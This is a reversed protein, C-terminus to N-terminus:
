KNGQEVLPLFCLGSCAPGSFLFFESCLLPEPSRSHNRIVSTTKAYDWSPPSLLWRNLHHKIVCLGGCANESLGRGHAATSLGNQQSSFTAAELARQWAWELKNQALTEEFYTSRPQWIDRRTHAWFTRSWVGSSSMEKELASQKGQLRQLQSQFRLPRLPFSRFWLYVCGKTGRTQRNQNGARNTCGFQSCPNLLSRPERHSWLGPIRCLWSGWYVTAPRLIKPHSFWEWSRLGPEPEQQM